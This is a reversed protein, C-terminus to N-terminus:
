QGARFEFLFAVPQARVVRHQRVYDVLEIIGSSAFLSLSVSLSLSHYPPMAYCPVSHNISLSHSICCFMEQVNCQAFSM